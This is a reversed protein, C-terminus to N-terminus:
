RPRLEMSAKLVGMDGYTQLITTKDRNDYSIANLAFISPLITKQDYSIRDQKDLM